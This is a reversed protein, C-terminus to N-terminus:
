SGSLLLNCAALEGALAQLSAFGLPRVTWNFYVPLVLPLLGGCSVHCIVRTGRDLPLLEYQILGRVPLRNPLLRWGLAKERNYTALEADVRVPQRALLLRVLAGKALPPKETLIVQRIFPQWVLYRDFDTLVSWIAARSADLDLQSQYVRM